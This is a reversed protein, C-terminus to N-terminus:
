SQMKLGLIPSDNPNSKRWVPLTPLDAPLRGSATNIAAQVEQAAVDVDKDLEFLLTISTTGLSSSSTMERIGPVGSLQVELPTAVASAMTEPSAGPLSASVEITPLDGEPLPAVPLLPYTICGLLILGITLLTTGIPHAIFWNSLVARSMGAHARSVHDPAPLM